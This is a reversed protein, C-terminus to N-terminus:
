PSFNTDPGSRMDKLTAVTAENASLKIQELELYYNCSAADGHLNKHTIYVDQNFVMNDFITAQDIGYIESSGVNTVFGVALLTPDSFDVTATVSRPSGTEDNETTFLKVTSEAESGGFGPEVPFLELKIIKYGKLGNNTSLRITQIEDNKILGRFSKKM